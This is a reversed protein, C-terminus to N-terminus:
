INNRFIDKLAPYMSLYTGYRKAYIDDHAHNPTFEKYVSKEVKSSAEYVDKFAGVGVGALLAAGIPAMDHIDLVTIDRGTIDAKIQAWVESKAGGGIASFKNIKNGTIREAI